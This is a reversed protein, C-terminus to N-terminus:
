QYLQLAAAMMFFAWILTLPCEPWTVLPRPEGALFVGRGEKGERSEEEVDRKKVDGKGEWGM